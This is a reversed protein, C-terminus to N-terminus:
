DYTLNGDPLKGAVIMAIWQDAIEPGHCDPRWFQKVEEMFQLVAKTRNRKMLERALTMNPGWFTPQGHTIQGSLLLYKEAEDVNNDLLALRGLVFNGLFVADGESESEFTNPRANKFRDERALALTQEAYSKAEDNLGAELAAKAVMGLRMLKINGSTAMELDIKTEEFHLKPDFGACTALSYPEGQNLFRQYAASDTCHMPTAAFCSASAFLLVSWRMLM